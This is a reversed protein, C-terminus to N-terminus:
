NGFDIPSEHIWNDSSLIDSIRKMQYDYLETHGNMKSAYPKAKHIANNFETNSFSKIEPLYTRNLVIPGKKDKMKVLVTM